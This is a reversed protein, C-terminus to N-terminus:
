FSFANGIYQASAYIKRSLKRRRPVATDVLDTGILGKQFTTETKRVSAAELRSLLGFRDQILLGSESSNLKNVEILLAGSDPASQQETSGTSRVRCKRGSSRLRHEWFSRFIPKQTNLFIRCRQWIPQRIFGRFIQKQKVIAGHRPIYYIITEFPTRCHRTTDHTICARHEAPPPEATIQRARVPVSGGLLSSQPRTRKPSAKENRRRLCFM